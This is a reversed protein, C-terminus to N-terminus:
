DLFLDLNEPLNAEIPEVITVQVIQFFRDLREVTVAQFEERDVERHANVLAFRGEIRQERLRERQELVPPGDEPAVRVAFLEFGGVRGAVRAGHINEPLDRVQRRRVSHADRRIRMNAKPDFRGLVRGPERVLHVPRIKTRREIQEMPQSEAASSQRNLFHDSPDRWPHHDHGDVAVVTRKGHFSNRGKELGLNVLIVGHKLRKAVGAVCPRNPQLAIADGAIWLLM